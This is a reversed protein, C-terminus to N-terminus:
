RLYFGNFCVTIHLKTEKWIKELGIDPNGTCLKVSSFFEIVKLMDEANKTKLPKCVHLSVLKTMMQLKVGLVHCM